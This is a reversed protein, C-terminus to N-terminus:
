KSIKKFEQKIHLIVVAITSCQSVANFIAELCGRLTCLTCHVVAFEGKKQSHPRIMKQKLANVAATPM